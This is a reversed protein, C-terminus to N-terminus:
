PLMQGDVPLDWVGREQSDNRDVRLYFRRELHDVMTLEGSIAHASGAPPFKGEVPEYWQPTDDANQDKKNRGSKDKKPDVPGDADTRFRPATEAALSTIACLCISLILRM